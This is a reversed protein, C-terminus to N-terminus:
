VLLNLFIALWLAVLFPKIELSPKFSSSPLFQLVPSHKGCVSLSPSLSLSIVKNRLQTGPQSPFQQFLQGTVHNCHKFLLAHVLYKKRRKNNFSFFVWVVSFIIELANQPDCNITAQTCHTQLSEMYNRHLNSNRQLYEITKMKHPRYM